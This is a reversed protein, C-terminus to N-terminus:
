GCLRQPSDQREATERKGSLRCKQPDKEVCVDRTGCKDHTKKIEWGPMIWPNLAHHVDISSKEEM